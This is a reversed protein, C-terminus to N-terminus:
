IKRSYRCSPFGSCGYFQKGANPGRKATRLVLTKGCWPCILLNPEAHENKIDIEGFAEKRFDKENHYKEKIREIHATKTAEDVNTLPLLKQYLEEIAAESLIDPNDNWYSRVAAYLRDRNIVKVDASTVTVKKLKCRESFVIVSFLPIKGIFRGLWKIHTNNQKIPNYFRNRQKNPLVATWYQGSEDGFIWGSYNKSELVFIGKQTIYLVDIESTEGNDKPVYVNRLTKGKKGMFKVFNLEKATLVEGYRGLSEDSFMIDFFDKIFGM